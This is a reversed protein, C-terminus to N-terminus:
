AWPLLGQSKHDSLLRAGSFGLVLVPAPFFESSSLIFAWLKGVLIEYPPSLPCFPLSLPCTDPKPGSLSPYIHRITLNACLDPSPPAKSGNEMPVEVPSQGVLPRMDMPSGDWGRSWGQHPTAMHCSAWSGHLSTPSLSLWLLLLPGGGLLHALLSSPSTPFHSRLEPTEAALIPWSSRLSCARM